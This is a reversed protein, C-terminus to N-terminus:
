LVWQSTNECSQLPVWVLGTAQTEDTTVERYHWHKHYTQSTAMEYGMSQFLSSFSSATHAGVKESGDEFINRVYDPKKDLKRSEM